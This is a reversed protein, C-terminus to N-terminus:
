LTSKKNVSNVSIVNVGTGAVNEIIIYGVNVPAKVEINNIRKIIEFFKTKPVPFETRVSLKSLLGGTVKVSGNVFIFSEEFEERAYFLGKKCSNGEVKVVIDDELFVKLNCKIPCIVCEIKKLEM